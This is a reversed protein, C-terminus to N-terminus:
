APTTRSRSALLFFREDTSMMAQTLPRLPQGSRPDDDCSYFLDYDHHGPGPEGSVTTFLAIM